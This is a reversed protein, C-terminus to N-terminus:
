FQTFGASSAPQLERARGSGGMWLANSSANASVPDGEGLETDALLPAPTKKPSVLWKFCQYAVLVLVVAAVVGVGLNMSFFSESQASAEELATTSNAPLTSNRALLSGEPAADEAHHPGENLLQTKAKDEKGDTPRALLVEERPLAPIVPGDSGAAVALYLALFTLAVLSRM